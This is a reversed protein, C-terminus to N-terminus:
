LKHRRTAGSRSKTPSRGGQRNRYNAGNKKGGRLLRAAGSRAKRREGSPDLVNLVSGESRVQLVRGAKCYQEQVISKQLLKRRVCRYVDTCFPKYEFPVGSQRCGAALSINVRQQLFKKITCPFFNSSIIYCPPYIILM